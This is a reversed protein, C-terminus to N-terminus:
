EYMNCNGGDGKLLFYDREQATFAKRATAKFFMTLIFSDKYHIM